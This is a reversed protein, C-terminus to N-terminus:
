CIPEAAEGAHSTLLVEAHSSLITDTYLINEECLWDPKLHPVRPCILNNLLSRAFLAGPDQVIVSSLTIGM